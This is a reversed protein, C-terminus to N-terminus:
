RNSEVGFGVGQKTLEYALGGACQLGRHSRSRERFTM